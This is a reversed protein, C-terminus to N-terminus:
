FRFRCASGAFRAQTPFATSHPPHTSPTSPAFAHSSGSLARRGSDLVAVSTVEDQHGEFCRLQTGSEPDWLRLTKDESGSVARRREAQVVVSTVGHEHGHIRRPEIKRAFLSEGDLLSELDLLHLATDQWCSWLARRGDAPLAM